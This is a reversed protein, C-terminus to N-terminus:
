AADAASVSLRVAADTHRNPRVLMYIAFAILAFAVVTFFNFSVEGTALGALQYIVLSMCWAFGCEYGIAAWFWKGGNMEKRIAGMAAFCPACLLNFALFAYGAAPTFAAQVNAIWGADGAYLIGFTSVVNEKAILGTVTTAAAQWNGFGQPVFIWAIANGFAALLSLSQDDVPGFSGDVFGYGSLFWIAIAAALIITGAKKMFAWCREWISRLVFGATPVHYAPLEMVFPATKGAFPKTKKLIVGSLLISGIGLFYASPAVWWEGGFIAGSILAIIPLKASCPMFTTTMVTMRRDNENEITRSSMVAPVGCGTGILMPIFSKGSLGFRRFIRDLIFAVRSMYGCGELLALLLFLVAMQPLFGFVSGVGAVIGDIVLSQVQPDVDGAEMAGTVLAPIGPVWVGYDSPNPEEVDLAEAYTAADVAIEENEGTEDDYDDYTATIGAADADAIFQEMDADYAALEDDTADDDPAEPAELGADAAAENFAEIEGTAATYEDSLDTYEDIQEQDGAVFWGDGFLNDNVWDTAGTGITTISLFYVLFMVVVFIPLALFRNTVVRDIKDSVSEKQASAHTLCAGIISTIYNYRENVIISEADDDMEKELRAILGEVDPVASMHGAIKADREFVKVAFFRRAHAPVDAPLEAEIQSLAEEVDASFSHARAPAAGSRAVELLKAKMEDIGKGKLASIAVVPAGMKESLAALDIADGNKEVVDMMNVAIVTPIGLEIAQTSLYLNRELNSGDVINLIANPAGDILYDRAVVEELTYPSLSYIGPLDVITVDSEGKLKGTKKEVTVGPWNGVYQNAGTLANFLTTKGCNPNGVLAVNFEM